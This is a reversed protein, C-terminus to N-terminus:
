AQKFSSAVLDQYEPHDAIYQQVFTCYPLVKFNNDRAYNLATEALQQAIGQGRMERPVFTHDLALDPGEMTYDLSALRGDMSVEFKHTNENRNVQMAM